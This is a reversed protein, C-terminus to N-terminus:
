LHYQLLVLSSTPLSTHLRNFHYRIFHPTSPNPLNFLSIIINALSHSFQHGTFSCLVSLTLILTTSLSFWAYHSYSFILISLILCESGLKFKLHSLSPSISLCLYLLSPPFSHPLSVPLPSLSFALCHILLKQHNYHTQPTVM